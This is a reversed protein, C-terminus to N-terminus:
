TDGEETAPSGRLADLAPCTGHALYHLASGGGTSVPGDWPLEAATDGGLLLLDVAPASLLNLLLESGTRFGRACHGPPGAVFARAGRNAIHSLRARMTGSVVLDVVAHGPPVGDSARVTRMPGAVPAVVVEDPLLLEARHPRGLADRAVRLCEEPRSGLESEGIDYGKARLLTNLVVGGPVVANYTDMVHALGTLTKEPKNGGLVAVSARDDCLGAWPALLEAERVVSDTLFGPRFALIGVNSAHARHAKSFGGAAVLDGLKAFEAALAPEGSTEGAHHRTNGFVVLEGPRIAEARRVAALGTNSSHYDVPADLRARLYDAVFDLDLANGYEGQHSLLAVRCGARLLLELDALETDLRDSRRQSRTVNFGASYIWRQGHRLRADRLLPVGRLAAAARTESRM